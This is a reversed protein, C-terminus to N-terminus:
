CVVLVEVKLVQNASFIITPDGSFIGERITPIEVDIITKPAFCFEIRVM